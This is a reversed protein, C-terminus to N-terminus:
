SRSAATKLLEITRALDKSRLPRAPFYTEAVAGAQDTAEDLATRGAGNRAGVRAGAEILLEVLASPDAVLRSRIVAHLPTDGNERIANPDAGHALLVRAVPANAVNTVPGWAAWDYPRRDVIAGAQLLMRASVTQDGGYGCWGLPSLGTQLDNAQGPARRLLEALKDHMGSAAAFCADPEAGGALLVRALEDRGLEFCDHLALRGDGNRADLNAGRAILLALVDARDEAVALHLLRMTRADSPRLLHPELDAPANVLEPHRDLIAATRGADGRRVADVLGPGEAHLAVVYAKLKRWSAFGYRRAIELQAASLNADPAAGRRKRHLAKAENKLHEFNARTPLGRDAADNDHEPM